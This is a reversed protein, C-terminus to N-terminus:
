KKPPLVSVKNDSIGETLKMYMIFIVYRFTSNRKTFLAGQYKLLIPNTMNFAKLLLMLDLM